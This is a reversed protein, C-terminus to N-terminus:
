YNNAALKTTNPTTIREHGIIPELPFELPPVFSLAIFYGAEYTNKCRMVYDYKVSPLNPNDRKNISTAVQHVRPINNEKPHSQHPNRVLIYKEISLAVNEGECLSVIDIDIYYWLSLKTIVVTM